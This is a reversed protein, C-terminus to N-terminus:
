LENPHCSETLMKQYEAFRARDKHPHVNIFDIMRWRSIGNPNSENILGIMDVGVVEFENMDFQWDRSRHAVKDM